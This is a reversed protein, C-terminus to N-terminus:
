QLAASCRCSTEAASTENSARAGPSVLNGEEVVGAPASSASFRRTNATSRCINALWTTSEEPDIRACTLALAAAHEYHRRRKNEIVGEIRKEAAKRMAAVMGTRATGNDPVAVDAMAILGAIEPTVLRPEDRHILSSLEDLDRAKSSDLVDKTLLSTFLPFVLHGPHEGNSWGIGPASALLKAAAGVDDLLVHLLARQRAAQKPCTELAAAVRERL